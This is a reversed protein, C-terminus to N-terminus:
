CILLADLGAYYWIDARKKPVILLFLCLLGFVLLRSGGILGQMWCICGLTLGFLQFFCFFQVFKPKDLSAIPSFVGAKQDHERDRYDFLICISHIVSFRYGLYAWFPFNWGSFDASFLPFLLTASTWVISLYLSKPIFFPNFRHFKWFPIKPLSYLGTLLALPALFIWTKPPLHWGSVLIGVGASLALLGLFPRYQMTWGARESELLQISDFGTLAWHLAYSCLTAAAMFGLLFPDISCGFTALTQACAGAALAALWFNGFLFGRLLSKILSV